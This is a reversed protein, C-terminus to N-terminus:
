AEGHGGAAAPLVVENLFELLNPWTRGDEGVVRGDGTGSVVLLHLRGRCRHLPVLHAPWPRGAEARQRTLTLVDPVLEIDHVMLRRGGFLEHDDYLIGGGVRELLSRYDDPLRRGLAQELLDLDKGSCRQTLHRARDRELTAMAEQM